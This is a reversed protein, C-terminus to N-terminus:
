ATPAMAQLVNRLAHNPTLNRHPLPAGTVPSTGHADMWATIAARSYTVGDSALVPDM